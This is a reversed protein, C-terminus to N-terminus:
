HAAASECTKMFAKRDAGKLSKEKAEASCAKKSARHSTAPTKGAMAPAAAAPAMAMASDGGKLCSSMFTKRASGKLAKGKADANCSKMKEQQTMGSGMAAPAAAGAAAPTAAMASHGGKLCTSMFAKRVEGTKGTAEHNCNVMREQQATLPKGSKSMGQAFAAGSGIALGFALALTKTTKLQM